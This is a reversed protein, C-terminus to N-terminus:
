ITLDYVKPLFNKEFQDRFFKDTMGAMFDVIIKGCNNSKTYDEKMQVYYLNYIDGHKENLNKTYREFIM